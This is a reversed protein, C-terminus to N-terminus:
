ERNLLRDALWLFPAQGHFDGAHRPRDLYYQIEKSQGTGVCIDTLNGKEDLRQVLQVWARDVAPRYRTEDLWGKQIGTELAFAFMATCSSEEWSGPVDVLQRWMGSEAQLPLLAEMMKRYGELIEPYDPHSEPISSLTEALASAVWGNGRGWFFPANPGHFFLGNKQQLKKLYATLFRAAQDAYHIKGTVRYAQIQLAGVMYMDDIWWRTEATLGDARPHAWQRDAFGLGFTRYKEDPNNRYVQLPIIGIVSFDVHPRSGILDSGPELLVEYREILRNLQNRNGTQEAVRLAGFAACAEAYHLGNTGYRMYGQRSLLNEVVRSAEAAVHKKADPLTKRFPVAPLGAGNYLTAKPNAQWAYRVEVPTPVQQSSVWVANGEIRAEAWYWIGDAGCVSFEEPQEGKVELGGDVHNFNIKLKGSIAEVSACRPGSFSVEQGYHKALAQLALREGVQKKDKPHIDNADGLDIAMALGSHRVSRSVIDQAERLEAWGDDGPVDRHQQFAALSVIYFPLDQQDFTKRWDAIMAPLLQKYQEARGVNSEGQYWIFGSMALPAIPTIMGNYLVTPISPWNEYTLPLRHPPAANVSVKGKWDRSLPFEMGDGLVLKLTEPESRFGGDPETKLVRIVLINKGPVLVGNGIFYNRPHPVWASAGVWHGNVKVTDMREVVGLQIHAPGPPLPDPLEVTKRLYCVAPYEPVDLTQFCDVLDVSTWEDDNLDSSFWDEKQGVDFEDYWHEVFNGYQKGGLARVRAIEDLLPDFDKLPRLSEESAWLEAATGGVCSQILGIPVDLEQQLTRGFFYGVGSFGGNAGIGVTDPSCVQWSGELDYVPEYAANKGVKFLRINPHDAAEVEAHGNRVQGLGWEMNSQGGCLWVDGVLVNKFESTQHKISSIKLTRPECSASMPDLKLQWSGSEDVAASKIQEAFEVTIMEGPAGWGWVPNPKGRQLVMHDGFMPSVFPRHGADTKGAVVDLALIAPLVIYLICSAPNAKM